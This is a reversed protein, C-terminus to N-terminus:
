YLLNDLDDEETAVPEFDDDPSTKGSLAEGDAIKQVNGLGCAIGRNGNSNYPYFDLSVRAYCGSYVESQDIIPNLNQDVIGPKSLSNANVFYHGAYEPKDPRETDGDRLPLKLNTPIKGGWKTAGQQKAEEIAKKIRTLTANDSKPILVSVSYKAQQGESIAKPEFLNAYSLRVKGTVVHTLNKPM